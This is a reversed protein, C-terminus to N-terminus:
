WVERKEMENELTKFWNPKEKGRAAQNIVAIYERLEETVIEEPRMGKFRGEPIVSSNQSEEKQPEVAKKQAKSQFVALSEGDDDTPALKFYGLLAYRRAYTQASGLAQMLNRSGDLGMIPTLFTESESSEVHLITTKLFFLGDIREFVQRVLLKNESLPENLADLVSELTPYRNKHHPNVGDRKVKSVTKQVKFVAEALSM